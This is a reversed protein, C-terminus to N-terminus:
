SFKKVHFCSAVDGAIVGRFDGVGQEPRRKLAIGHSENADGQGRGGKEPATTVQTSIESQFELHITRSSKKTLGVGFRNCPQKM